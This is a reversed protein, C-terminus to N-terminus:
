RIRLTGRQCLEQLAKIRGGNSIMQRLIRRHLGFIEVLELKSPCTNRRQFYFDHSENWERGTGPNLIGALGSAASTQRDDDVIKTAVTGRGFGDELQPEGERDRYQGIVFVRPFDGLFRMATSELDHKVKRHLRDGVLRGFRQLETRTHRCLLNRLLDSLKQLINRIGGTDVIMLSRLSCSVGRQHILQHGDQAIMMEEIDVAAGGGSGHRVLCRPIKSNSRSEAVNGEEIVDGLYDRDASLELKCQSAGAILSLCHRDAMRM